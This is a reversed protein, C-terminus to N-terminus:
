GALVRRVADANYCEEGDPRFSILSKDIKSIIKPIRFWRGHSARKKVRGASQEGM